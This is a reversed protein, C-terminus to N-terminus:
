KTTPVCRFHLERMRKGLYSASFTTYTKIGVTWASNPGQGSHGAKFRDACVQVLSPLDPNRVRTAIFKGAWRSTRGLLLPLGLFGDALDPLPAAPSGLNWASRSGLGLESWTGVGPGACGEGRCVRSANTLRRREPVQTGARDARGERCSTVQTVHPVLGWM